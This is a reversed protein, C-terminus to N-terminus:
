EPLNWSKQTGRSLYAHKLLPWLSPVHVIPIVEEEVFLKCGLQVPDLDVANLQLLRRLLILLRM